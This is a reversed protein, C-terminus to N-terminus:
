EWTRATGNILCTGIQFDGARTLLLEVRPIPICSDRRQEGRCFELARGGDERWGGGGQGVRASLIAVQGTWTDQESGRSSEARGGLM